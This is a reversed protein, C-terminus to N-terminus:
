YVRASAQQLYEIAENIANFLEEVSSTQDVSKRLAYEVACEANGLYVLVCDRVDKM